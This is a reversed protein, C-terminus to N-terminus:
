DTHASFNAKRFVFRDYTLYNYILLVTIMLAFAGSSTIFEYNLTSVGIPKLIKFIWSYLMDFDIFMYLLIPRIVWMGVGTFAAFRLLTAFDKESGKWTILSHTTFAFLLAFTGSVIGALYINSDDFVYVMLLSYFAFDVLTNLLGVGLFIVPKKTSSLIKKQM